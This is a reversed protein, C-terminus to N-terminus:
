GRTFRRSSWYKYGQDEVLKWGRPRLSRDVMTNFFGHAVVLVDGAQALEILRDAVGDARLQAEARSEQGPHHHNLFWWWTRAILGWARPTLKLWSPWNPPPLPAEILEVVAVFERGGAVVEASQISRIRTSCVIAGAGHAVVLLEDPPNQDARLGTEEYRAWWKTYDAASLRLKRSIDPEGHRTLIIDGVGKGSAASPTALAAPSKTRTPM